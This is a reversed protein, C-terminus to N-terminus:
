QGRQGRIIAIAEKLHLATQSFGMKEFFLAIKEAPYVRILYFLIFGTALPRLLGWIMTSNESQSYIFFLATIVFSLIFLPSCLDKLALWLASKGEIAPKLRINRIMKNQFIAYDQDSMKIAFFCIFIGAMVKLLVFAIALPLLLRLDFTILKQLETAFHTAVDLSTKGFLLYIFLVPQIFAWLSSLLSAVLFGFINVGFIALASSFLLGQALIALM